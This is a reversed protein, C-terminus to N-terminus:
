KRTRLHKVLTQRNAPYELNKTELEFLFVFFLCSGFVPCFVQVRQFTNPFPLHNLTWTVPVLLKHVETYAHM